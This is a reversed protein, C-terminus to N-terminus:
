INKNHVLVGSVFYTHCDAVTLDYLPLPEDGPEIREVVAPVLDAGGNGEVYLVSGERLDEARIWRDGVYLEHNWTVELGRGDQLWVKLYAGAPHQHRAVVKCPRLRREAGDYAIVRDGILVQQLPVVSGDALTVGMRGTFCRWEREAPPTPPPNSYYDASYSTGPQAPGSRPTLTSPVVAGTGDIVRLQGTDLAHQCCTDCNTGGCARGVENNHLDMANENAPGGGHSEHNDAVTKAQDRGLGATMTCNWYCHRWADGPGNWLGPLGTRKAAALADNKITRAKWSDIPGIGWLDSWIEGISQRAVIAADGPPRATVRIGQGTPPLGDRQQVVHTLEHALLRRGESTRPAYQGAGFVVDRGMTYARARLMRASDAAAANAHVRVSGFGVGFREEFSHRTATDLPQGSGLQSLLDAQAAPVARDAGPEARRAIQPAKEGSCKSCRGGCSCPAAKKQVVQEATQDAERELPDGPRSVELKPLIRRARLLQQLAQNGLQAAPSSRDSIASGSGNFDRAVERAVSTRPRRTETLRYTGRM